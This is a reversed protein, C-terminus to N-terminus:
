VRTEIPFILFSLEKKLKDIKPLHIVGLQSISILVEKLEEIKKEDLHQISVTNRTAEM